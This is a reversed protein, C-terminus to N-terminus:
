KLKKITHTILQIQDFNHNKNINFFFVCMKITELIVYYVNWTVLSLVNTRPKLKCMEKCLRLTFACLRKNKQLYIANGYFINFNKKKSIRWHEIMALFGTKIQFVHGLRCSFFYENENEKNSNNNNHFCPLQHSILFCKIVNLVILM